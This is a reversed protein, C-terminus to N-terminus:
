ESKGEVPVRSLCQWPDLLRPKPHLCPHSYFVHPGTSSQLTITNAFKCGVCNLRVFETHREEREDQWRWTVKAVIGSKRLRLRIENAIEKRSDQTRELEIQIGRDPCTAYNECRRCMEKVFNLTEITTFSKSPISYRATSALNCVLCAKQQKGIARLVKNSIRIKCTPDEYVTYSSLSRCLKRIFDKM